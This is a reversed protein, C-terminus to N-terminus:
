LEPNLAPRKPEFAADWITIRLRASMWALIGSPVMRFVPSVQSIVPPDQHACVGAMGPVCLSTAGLGRVLSICDGTQHASLAPGAYLSQESWVNVSRNKLMFLQGHRFM